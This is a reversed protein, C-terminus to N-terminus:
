LRYGFAAFREEVDKVDWWEELGAAINLAHGRLVARDAHTEPDMDFADWPLRVRWNEVEGGLREIHVEAELIWISGDRETCLSRVEFRMARLASWDRLFAQTEAVLIPSYHRRTM